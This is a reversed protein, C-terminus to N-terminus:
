YQIRNENQQLHVVTILRNGLLVIIVTNNNILTIIITCIIRNTPKITYQSALELRRAISLHNKVMIYKGVM